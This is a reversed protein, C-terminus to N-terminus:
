QEYLLIEKPNAKRIVHIGALSSAVTVGYCLCGIMMANETTLNIKFSDKMENQSVDYYHTEANVSPVRYNNVLYKSVMGSISNGIIFSVIIAVTAILSYERIMESVLKKKSKGLALLLGNEKMRGKINLFLILSVIILSVVTVIILAILSINNLSKIPASIQDYEKSSTIVKVNEISACREKILAGIPKIDEANTVEIRVRGTYTSKTNNAIRSISNGNSSNNHITFDYKEMLSAQEDNIRAIANNPVYIAECYENENSYFGIVTFKYSNVHVLEDDKVFYDILTIEDGLKVPRVNSSYSDDSFSYVSDTFDTNNVLADYCCFSSSIPLICVFDGNDIEEKTFYRGNYGNIIDNYVKLAKNSRSEMLYPDDDGILNIPPYLLPLFEILNENDSNILLDNIEDDVIAQSIEKIYTIYTGFEDFFVASNDKGNGSCLKKHYHYDVYKVDFSEEIESVASKIATNYNEYESGGLLGSRPKNDYPGEVIIVGGKNSLVTRISETSAERILFAEVIMTFLAILICLLTINSKTLYKNSVKMQM